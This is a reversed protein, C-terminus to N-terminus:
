PLWSEQSTSTLHDREIAVRCICILNFDRKYIEKFNHQIIKGYKTNLLIVDHQM